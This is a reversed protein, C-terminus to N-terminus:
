KAAKMAVGAADTSADFLEPTMPKNKVAADGANFFICQMKEDSCAADRIIRYRDADIANDPAPPFFDRMIEALASQSISQNLQDIQTHMKLANEAAQQIHAEMEAIRKDQAAIHDAAEACLHTNTGANRLRDEISTMIIEKETIM